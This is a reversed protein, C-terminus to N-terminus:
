EAIAQYVLQRFLEKFERQWPGPQAQTMLVAVMQEKPDVWFGTGGAGGWNYEGASGLLGSLGDARRVAFGLGFGYGPQLTPIAPKIDGLHDSTMQRVTTRALIRKGDLQGGNALMQLFRAYDITVGAAGAGGADNKAAVTVDHLAIPKGTAKDVALPQALRKVKNAPVLFSTDTMGLPWFLRTELFRSLPMGSVAEVVRGAVDTSLGYEWMTGPQRALPVKALAQLQEAPTVGSWNVNEKTYLDKLYANPTSPYVFGSTHRLLDYVTVPKEAAVTTYTPKGAADTGQVLVELKALEPLYVGIPDMLRLRGDEVLLMIAVSTFPKTMSYLRFIADKSMPAGNKPDLQGVAEFYAIRGKRAVLAVAGPFSGEEIQRTLAPAIRALRDRSLGVEEPKAAQFAAAGIPAVSSLVLALLLALRRM